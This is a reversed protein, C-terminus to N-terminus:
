KMLIMKRTQVFSGARLTYFYVGSSLQGAGVRTSRPSFNIISFQSNYNGPQKYEDVLTAIERGLLDFVKLSVQSAAQVKYSITTEPNFPNPYNQYLAFEAPIALDANNEEVGTIGLVNLQNKVNTYRSTIFSKIGPKRETRSGGPGPGGSSTTTVDKVINTDFQELTYQKKTDLIVYPRIVAAISDIHANLKALVFYKNFVEGITNLYNTKLTSNGIIKSMLPRSSSSSTYTLSITEPTSASGPYSGLSMNVDWIIWEMKKTDENFYLYFNRGSETYSDMNAFLIDTGIAKYVSSLNVKESLDNVISASNNLVDIVSILDTWPEASDDTKLEYRNTYSSSAIGYYAFDSLVQTTPQGPAGGGGFADVAKYLNGDNNDYNRKLFKSDVPEVISYLGWVVDNIYVLAFNARPASIGADRCFDLHVKERMFSPDSFCNNLFLGKLGDYRQGSIYENFDLRMPKKNNPHSYSSNGKLRIGCSDIVTGNITAKVVINKDNGQTYYTTLSDWYNIQDFQLKITHVKIGAFLADGANQAILLNPLLLIINLVKKLSKM